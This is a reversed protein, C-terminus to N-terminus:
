RAFLACLVGVGGLVVLLWGDGSARYMSPAVSAYKAGQEVLLWVLGAAIVLAFFTIM